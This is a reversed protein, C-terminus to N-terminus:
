EEYYENEWEKYTMYDIHETKGEENKSARSTFGPMDEYYPVVVSRCHPEHLPPVNYGPEAEDIPIINGDAEQCMPSTLNDLTAVFLLKDVGLYDCMDETAKTGSYNSDTQVIAKLQNFSRNLRKHVKNVAESFSSGQSLSIRLEKGVDFILWRKYKWLMDSSTAGDARWTGSLLDDVNAWDDQAILMAIGVDLMVTYALRKGTELYQETLLEDFEPERMGMLLALLASIELRLGELRTLGTLTNLRVELDKDFLIEAEEARKLYEKIKSKLVALESKTLFIDLDKSELIGNNSYRAYFVAIREDIEDLIKNFEEELYVLYEINAVHRLEEISKFKNIYRKSPRSM